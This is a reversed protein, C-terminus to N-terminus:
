FLLMGASWLLVAAMTLNFGTRYRSIIKQLVGGAAAWTFTGTLGAVTNFLAAALLFWLSRSVPLVYGSYVTLAYLIIKVNAFQLFFGTWFTGSGMQTGNGTKGTVIHVALWVLYAAGVYKLVATLAPLLKALEFCALASLVMVSLFGSAIGLLMPRGAKWGSRSVTDFALINNPGPTFGTVLAYPLFATLTQLLM